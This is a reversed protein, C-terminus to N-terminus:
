SCDLFISRIRTGRTYGSCFGTVPSIPNQSCESDSFYTVPLARTLLKSCNSNRAMASGMECYFRQLRVSFECKCGAQVTNVVISKVNALPYCTDAGGTWAKVEGANCNPESWTTVAAASVIAAGALIAHVVSTGFTFM